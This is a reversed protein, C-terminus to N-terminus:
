ASLAKAVASGKKPADVAVRRRTTTGIAIESRRRVVPGHRARHPPRSARPVTGPPTRARSHERGDRRESAGGRSGVALARAGESPVPSVDAMAAALRLGAALFGAAFFGAAFFHPATYYFSAVRDLRM